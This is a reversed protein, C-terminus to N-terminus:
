YWGDRQNGEEFPVHRRKRSGAFSRKRLEVPSLLLILDPSRPPRLKLASRGVWKGQFINMLSECFVRTLCTLIEGAAMFQVLHLLGEFQHLELEMSM